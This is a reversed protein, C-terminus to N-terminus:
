SSNLSWIIFRQLWHCLQATCAANLNFCELILICWDLSDVLTTKIFFFHVFNCTNQQALHCLWSYTLWKHLWLLIPLVMESILHLSKTNRHCKKALFWSKWRLDSAFMKAVAFPFSFMIAIIQGKPSAPLTIQANLPLPMSWCGLPQVKRCPQLYRFCLKKWMWHEGLPRYSQRYHAQWCLVQSCAEIGYRSFYIHGTLYQMLLLRLHVLCIYQPVFCTLLLNHRIRATILLFCPFTLDSRLICCTYLLIRCIRTTLELFCPRTM